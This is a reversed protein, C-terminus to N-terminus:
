HSSRSPGWEGFAEAQEPTWAISAIVAGDCGSIQTTGRRYNISLNPREVDVSGVAPDTDLETYGSSALLGLTSVAVFLGSALLKRM